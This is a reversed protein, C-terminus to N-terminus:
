GREGFRNAMRYFNRLLVNVPTPMDRSVRRDIEEGNLEFFARVAAHDEPREAQFGMSWDPFVREAVSGEDLTIIGKHSPDACINAYLQGVSDGEIYQIWNGDHYMLLGTIGHEINATRFKELRELLEADTLSIVSTSAYIVYNM